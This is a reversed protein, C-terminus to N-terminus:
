LCGTTPIQENSSEPNSAVATLTLLDRWLDVIFSSILYEGVKIELYVTNHKWQM